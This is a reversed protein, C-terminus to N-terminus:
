FCSHENYDHPRPALRRSKGRVCPAHIRASVVVTPTIRVHPTKNAQVEDVCFTVPGEVDLHGTPAAASGARNPASPPFPVSLMVVFRSHEHLAADASLQTCSPAWDEPWPLAVSVKRTVVFPSGECRRPAMVMPSCCTGMLWSAAAHTKVTGDRSVTEDSPSRRESFTVALPVPHEHVARLSVSHSVM